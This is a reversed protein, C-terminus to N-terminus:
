VGHAANYPFYFHILFFFLFSFYFFTLFLKFFIRTSETNIPRKTRPQVWLWCFELGEGLAVIYGVAYAAPLGEGVAVTSVEPM